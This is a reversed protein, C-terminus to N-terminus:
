VAALTATVLQRRAGVLAWYLGQPERLAINLAWLLFFRTSKAARNEM